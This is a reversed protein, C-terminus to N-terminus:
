CRRRLLRAGSRTQGDRHHVINFRRQGTNRSTTDSVMALQRCASRKQSATATYGIPPLPKMRARPDIALRIVSLARQNADDRAAGM